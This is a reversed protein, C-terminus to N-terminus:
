RPPNGVILELDSFAQSKQLHDESIGIKYDFSKHYFYVKDEIKKCTGMGAVRYPDINGIIPPLMKDNIKERTYEIKYTHLLSDLIYAHTKRMNTSFIRIVPKEEVGVYVQVVKFDENDAFPVHRDEIKWM